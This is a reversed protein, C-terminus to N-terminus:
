AGRRRVLEQYSPERAMASWDLSAAIAHSAAVHAEDSEAGVRDQEVWWALAARVAAYTKTPDDDGLACWRASGFIPVDPATLAATTWRHIETLAEAYHEQSPIADRVVPGSWPEDNGSSPLAAQARRSRGVSGPRTVHEVSAGSRSQATARRDPGESAREGTMASGPPGTSCLCARAAVEGHGRGGRARAAEATSYGLLDVLVVMERTSASLSNLLESVLHQGAVYADVDAAAQPEDHDGLPDEFWGGNRRRAQNIAENVTIRHLWTRVLSRGEFREASRVANLLATQVVDEADARGVIRCAVAFMYRGHRRVLEAFADRDGAVHRALLEADSVVAEVPSLDIKEEHEPRRECV